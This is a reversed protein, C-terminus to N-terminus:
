LFLAILHQLSESSGKPAPLCGAPSRQRGAGGEALVHCYTSFCRGAATIQMTGFLGVDWWSNVLLFEGTMRTKLFGKTEQRM